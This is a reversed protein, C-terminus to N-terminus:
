SAFPRDVWMEEVHDPAGPASVRYTIRYRDPASLAAAPGPRSGNPLLLFGSAIALAVVAAAVVVRRARSRGSRTGDARRKDSRTGRLTIVVQGTVGKAKAVSVSGSLRLNRAPSM